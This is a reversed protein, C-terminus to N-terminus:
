MVRQESWKASRRVSENPDDILTRLVDQVRPDRVIMHPAHILAGGIHSRHAEHPVAAEAISREILEETTLPPDIEQRIMEEHRPKLAVVDLYLEPQFDKSTLLRFRGSEMRYTRYGYDEFLRILDSTSHGYEPLTWANCEYVVVPGDKRTFLSKLSRSAAVESGEIDMKMFDVGKWGIERLLDDGRIAPVEVIPLGKVVDLQRGEQAVMGWLGAVHFRVTGEQEGMAAHVVRMRKFNNREVSRRLLEVHKPSADVALVDHGRAAAELSFTGIHAGLDLVRAKKKTFRALLQTLYDNARHGDLYARAIPDDSEADLVM